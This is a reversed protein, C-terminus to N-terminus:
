VGGLILLITAIFFVTMAIPMYKAYRENAKQQENSLTILVKYVKWNSKISPDLKIAQRIKSATNYKPKYLNIWYLENQLAQFEDKCTIYEIRQVKSYLDTHALHSKDSFHQKFRRSLNVTKGVYLVENNIGMFRYVYGKREFM